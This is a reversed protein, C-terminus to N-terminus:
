VGKKVWSGIERGYPPNCFVTQGGWNQKLGDQEKTFHYKCKTNQDTSCPDLTFEHVTNLENFLWQPTSWLDTNSSWMVDTKMDDGIRIFM